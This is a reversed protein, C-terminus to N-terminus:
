VSLVAFSVDAASDVTVETIGDHNSRLRPRRFPGQVSVTGFPVNFTEDDRDCTSTDEPCDDSHITVNANTDISDNKVILLESNSNAFENGDVGDAATFSLEGGSASPSIPNAM